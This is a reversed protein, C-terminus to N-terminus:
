TRAYLLNRHLNNHQTSIYFNLKFSAKITDINDIYHRYELCDVCTGCVFDCNIQFYFFCPIDPNRKFPSDYVIKKKIYKLDSVLSYPKYLIWAQEITLAHPYDMMLNMVDEGSKVRRILDEFGKVMKDGRSKCEFYSDDSGTTASGNTSCSGKYEKQGNSQGSGDYECSFHSECSGDSESSFHAGSSVQFEDLRTSRAVKRQPSSECESSEEDSGVFLRRKCKMAYLHFFNSPFM